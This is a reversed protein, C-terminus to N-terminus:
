SIVKICVSEIEFVNESRFVGVIYIFIRKLYMNKVYKIYLLMKWKGLLIMKIEFWM